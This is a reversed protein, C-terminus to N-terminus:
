LVEGPAGAAIELIDLSGPRMGLTLAKLNGLTWAEAELHGDIWDGTVALCPAWGVPKEELLLCTRQKRLLQKALWQELGLDM